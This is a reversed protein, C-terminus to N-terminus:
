ASDEREGNYITARPFDLPKNRTAADRVRQRAGENKTLIAFIRNVPLPSQLVIPAFLYKKEASQHEGQNRRKQRHLM